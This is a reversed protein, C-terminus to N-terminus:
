LAARQCGTLRRLQALQYAGFVGNFLCRILPDEVVDVESVVSNLEAVFDFDNIRMYMSTLTEGAQLAAHLKYLSVETTWAINGKAETLREIESGHVQYFFEQGQGEHDFVSLRWLRPKEFYVDEPDSMSRYKTLLGSQCYEFVSRAQEPTLAPFHKAVESTKPPVLNPQYDYDVDQQGVPRIWPLPESFQVGARELVISCSPNLRVVQAQPLLANIQNQFAAYSVPFFAHNYWSWSEMSFQCSSPIVVRPNLVKLQEAWEEPILGDSPVANRPAIVEIERMTQFPWMVLDWPAQDRLLDLTDYDIWSDVVNLINLGKAKIQFLSDVDADLARRPIIEFEGIKVSTNLALSNVNTFGLQRIWDFIEDFVCYMYIPTSRDLLNLSDLSCHDDHYHSIFVASFKLDRIQDKDFDVSPFAHCNRSFPNEFITDFAVRIGECEFVYGAHLIRSVKVM